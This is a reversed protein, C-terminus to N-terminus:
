GEGPLPRWRVTLIPSPRLPRWSHELGPGWVVFDGPHDLTLVFRTRQNSFTLEFEGEGALLSMTRGQSTPKAAGWGADDQPRHLFWKVAIDTALDGPVGGGHDTQQMFRLSDPPISPFHGVIWNTDPREPLRLDWANGSELAEPPIGSCRM